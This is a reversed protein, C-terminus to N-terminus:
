AGPMNAPTDLWVHTGEPTVTVGFRDRDPRGWSVWRFYADAVEDWLGRGGYQGVEFETRGPEFDCWAWSTRDFTVLLLSFRDGESETWSKVGPLLAALAVDLGYLEWAISRPDLRTTSM